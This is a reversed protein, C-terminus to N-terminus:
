IGTEQMAPLNKVMQAVLSASILSSKEPFFSKRQFTSMKPKGPPVLPQSGERWHLLHLIHPNSRWYGNSYQFPLGSWYEERFFEMLLLAQCAETKQPRHTQLSNSVSLTCACACACVYLCPSSFKQTTKCSFVHNGIYSSQNKKETNQQKIQASADLNM